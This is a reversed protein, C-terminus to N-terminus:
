TFHNRSIREENNGNNGGENNIVSKKCAFQSRSWGWFKSIKEGNQPETALQKICCAFELPGGVCWGYHM